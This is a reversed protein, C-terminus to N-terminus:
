HSGALTAFAFVVASGAVTIAFGIIVRRLSRVDEALSNIAARLGGQGSIQEEHTAITTMLKDVATNLNDVVRELEKVRYPLAQDDPVRVDKAAHAEVGSLHPRWPKALAVGLNPAYTGHRVESRM